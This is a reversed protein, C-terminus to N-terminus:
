NLTFSFFLFGGFHPNKDTAAIHTRQTMLAETEGGDIVFFEDTNSNGESAQSLDLLM